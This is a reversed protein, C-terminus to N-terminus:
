TPTHPARRRPILALALAAAAAASIMFVRTHNYAGIVTGPAPTGLVAVFTAVGLTAGIQRFMTQAGIGTALKPPPLTATAAITFAPLALGVGSGGILMAPFFRTWYDPQLGILTIWLVSGTGFLLAGAGGVLGPGIRQALRGAFPAFVAAAVPGPTLSLGARLV